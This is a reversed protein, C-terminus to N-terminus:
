KLRGRNRQQVGALVDDLSQADAAKTNVTAVGDFDDLCGLVLALKLLSELSILGVKEFRKLSHFNVGSRDALGAQSLNMALRRRRFRDRLLLAVDQPTQLEIRLM